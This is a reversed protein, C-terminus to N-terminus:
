NQNAHYLCVSFQATIAAATLWGSNKLIFKGLTSIAASIGKAAILKDITALSAYSAILSEIINEACSLLEDSSIRYSQAQNIFDGLNLEVIEQLENEPIDSPISYYLAELDIPESNDEPNIYQKRALSPESFSRITKYKLEPNASISAKAKSYFETAVVRYNSKIRMELEQDSLNRLGPIKELLKIQEVINGM